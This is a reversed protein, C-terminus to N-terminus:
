GGLGLAALILHLGFGGVIVLVLAFIWLKTTTRMGEFRDILREATSRADPPPLKLHPSTVDRQLERLDTQTRPETLATSLEGM